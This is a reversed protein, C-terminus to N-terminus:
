RSHRRRCPRAPPRPPSVHRARHRRHALRHRAAAPRGDAPRHRCALRVAAAAALHERGAAGDPSFLQGPLGRFPLLAGNLSVLLKPAMQGDLCMRCLIAAGASHGVGLEPALELAALLAPWARPWARCRCAEPRRCRPSATGPLDPAVVTFREALLPLLRAFSHTAAGTGHLLLAVPGSGWSRCTGACGPRRCSAAAVRIPGTAPRRQGLGPPRCRRTPPEDAPAASGRVPHRERRHRRGCRPRCCPPTRTRCRCTARAWRPRSRGPWRSRSPRSTSCWRRSGQRASRARPRWRTRRPAQARGGSGDRAVNARGDTLLIVIPTEGKRRIPEALALAADIGAALPTGGGGPLGALSRKARVLSRTPPLLLEAAAAAFRSCRWRTAGSTATPWCCSSRVRPRPWGISRRRAPPMSSSSRPPERSRQKFRPDRSLRRPPRRGARGGSGDRERRRLPQWPAAARLTEVLNLRAGAKPAVAGSAPRVGARVRQACRGARGVADPAGPAPQGPAATGAPRAPHRAAAAALVLDSM